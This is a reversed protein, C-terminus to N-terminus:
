ILARGGGRAQWRLEAESPVLRIVLEHFQNLTLRDALVRDLITGFLHVDGPGLFAGEDVEIRSQIGRLPAGRDLRTIASPEITRLAAIRGAASRSTGAQLDHISLLSRLAEPRALSAYTLALHGLLRWRLEAGAPPTAPSSVPTINRFRLAGSRPERAISGPGLEGAVLRNTCLLDVHLVEGALASPPGDDATGLALYTDVCGDIPSIMRRVRYAPADGRPPPGGAPSWHLPPIELHDLRGGRSARVALVEAIEVEGPRHGAVRVLHESVLPDIKIPEATAQFLNVVPTCHLRFNAPGIAGPLAEAGRLALSLELTEGSADGVFPGKIAFFMFKDPAAFLEQCLRLGPPALEPWPILAEEEALGVAEIAEAGLSRSSVEAGDKGLLRARVDVCRDLAWLRIARALAPEAAIFFRLARPQALLARAAETIRLRLVLAEPGGRGAQVRADQVEAAILDVDYCSRFTCTVGARTTAEMVRGRAIQQSGRLAQ